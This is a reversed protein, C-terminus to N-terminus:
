ATFELQGTQGGYPAINAGYVTYDQGSPSQGSSLSVLSLSNGAFSVTFLATPLSEWARFQLSETNAPITGDQWLSVNGQATNFAQLFVTYSGDIIGPGLLTWNPGLIDISAAGLTENNQLVQTVVTGDILGNWDPLASSLSVEGGFQGSPIPSLDASEFNLNQFTGQAQVSLVALFAVSFGVIQKEIKM